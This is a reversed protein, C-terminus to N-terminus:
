RAGKTSADRRPAFKLSKANGDDTLDSKALPRVLRMRIWTESCCLESRMVWAMAAM